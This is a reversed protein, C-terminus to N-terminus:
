SNAHCVAECLPATITAPLPRLHHDCCRREFGASPFLSSLRCRCLRGLAQGGCTAQEAEPLEAELLGTMGFAQQRHCDLWAKTELPRVLEWAVVAHKPHKFAVSSCTASLHRQFIALVMPLLLPLMGHLQLDQRMGQGRLRVLPISQDVLTSMM